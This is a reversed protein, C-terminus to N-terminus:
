LFSCIIVTETYKPSTNSLTPQKSYEGPWCPYQWLSPVWRVVPRWSNELNV